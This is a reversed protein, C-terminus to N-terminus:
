DKDLKFFYYISFVLDESCDEALSKLLAHTNSKKYKRLEKHDYFSVFVSDTLVDIIASSETVEDILDIMHGISAKSIQTM